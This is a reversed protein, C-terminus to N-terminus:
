TAQWFCVCVPLCARKGTGEKLRQSPKMRASDQLGRSAAWTPSFHQARKTNARASGIGASLHIYVGICTRATADRVSWVWTWLGSLRQQSFSFCISFLSQFQSPWFIHKTQDCTRCIQKLTKSENRNRWWRPFVGSANWTAWLGESQIAVIFSKSSDLVFWTITEELKGSSHFMKGTAATCDSYFANCAANSKPRTPFHGHTDEWISGSKIDFWISINAM